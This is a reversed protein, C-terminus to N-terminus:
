SSCFSHLTEELAKTDYASTFVCNGLEGKLLILRLDGDVVKKDVAMINQFKEVTMTSPPAVPVKARELLNLIRSQLSADIWGLRFSLDAAMVTGAAVAEGHLWGGYGIGTEIAHGFTHGLNLTARLGAEKEDLSVVEAKNECSRKIAYALADPDRALLKDMNEEQWEFFKADRILGYKVVEAIGSCLEREPLTSLTDTDIVVCQPQYFAGILNKGLPHNVGTKGGVSSDVQAMLTTPIQIFNVGRLFAAAAFGCMDGIVGGGLAVFTCRRDMRTEVAKDFVKMLTGMDKYKEGDPLIVSEVNIKSGNAKLLGVVKELYLPAVTTNTVVLVNKGKVHKQLLEPKDLLGSGIYIPYTRDSLDVDVVEMRAEESLHVDQLVQFVVIERCVFGLLVVVDGGRIPWREGHHCSRPDIGRASASGGYSRRGGGFRPARIEKQKSGCLRWHQGSPPWSVQGGPSRLRHTLWTM